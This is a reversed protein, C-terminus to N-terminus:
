ISRSANAGRQPAPSGRRGRSLTQTPAPELCRFLSARVEPPLEAFSKPPSGRPGFSTRLEWLATIKIEALVPRPTAASNEAEASLTESGFLTEAFRREMEQQLLALADQTAAWPPAMHSSDCFRASVQMLTSARVVAPACVGLSALGRLFRRRPVVLSGMTPLGCASASSYADATANRWRQRRHRLAHIETTRIDSWQCELLM